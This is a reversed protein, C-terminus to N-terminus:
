SSASVALAVGSYRADDTVEELVFHPPVYRAAEGESRFEVEFVAIPRAEEYVDIVGSEVAYRRKVARQGQLAAFVRYEAESLYINTMPNALSASRGYKKCLKYIPEEAPQTIKRLRLQTGDIYLDDIRRFPQGELTVALEPFVLWRREIEPLSYKPHAM